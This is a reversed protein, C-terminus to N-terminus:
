AMQLAHLGSSCAQGVAGSPHAPLPGVAAVSFGRRLGQGKGSHGGHRVVQAEGPLHIVAVPQEVVPVAEVM